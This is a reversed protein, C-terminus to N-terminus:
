LLSNLSFEGPKLEPPREGAVLLAKPYKSSRAAERVREITVNDVIVVKPRVLDLLYAYDSPKLYTYVHTGVAGVKLTAIWAAAWEPSDELILLVRNEPEVALAKLVNGFKNALLWLERYSYTRDKFYLATKDGRGCALNGDLYYSGLNLREPISFEIPEGKIM